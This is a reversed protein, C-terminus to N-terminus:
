MCRSATFDGSSLWWAATNGSSIARGDRPKTMSPASRNMPELRKLELTWTEARAFAAAALITGAAAAVLFRAHIRM